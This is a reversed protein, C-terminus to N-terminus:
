PTLNHHSPLAVPPRSARAGGALNVKPIGEPNPMSWMQDPNGYLANIKYEGADLVLKVDQGDPAIVHLEIRQPLSVQEEAYYRYNSSNSWAILNNSADYLSQQVIRASKPTRQTETSM